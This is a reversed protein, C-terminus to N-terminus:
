CGNALKSITTEETGSIQRVQDPTVGDLQLEFGIQFAAGVASIQYTATIRSIRGSEDRGFEYSYDVVLDNFDFDGKRPRQDEFAYAGFMNEGPFFTTSSADPDEPYCDLANFVGDGDHDLCYDGASLDSDQCDVSGDGDDDLQNYAIEFTPADAFPCGFGDNGSATEGILRRDIGTPNGQADLYIQIIKGSVNQAFFLDGNHDTWAAGFHSDLGIEESYDGLLSVSLDSLDFRYLECGNTLGYVDGNQPYFVIDSINGGPHSFRLEAYHLTELNVIGMKGNLSYIILNGSADM